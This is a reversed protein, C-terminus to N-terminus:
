GCISRDYYFEEYYFLIRSNRWDYGSSFNDCINEQIEEVPLFFISIHILNLFVNNLLSLSAVSYVYMFPTLLYFVKKYETWLSSVSYSYGCVFILPVFQFHQYITFFYLDHTLGINGRLWGVILQAPVILILVGLFAKPIIKNKDEILQGLILGAMPLLVQMALIIKRPEIRFGPLVASVAMCLAMSVVVKFALSARRYNALLLLLCGYCVLLSVPLPLQKIIGGSDIVPHVSNYIRGSLQFFLPFILGVGVIWLILDQRKICATSCANMRAKWAHLGM